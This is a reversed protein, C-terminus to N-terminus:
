LRMLRVAWEGDESKAPVAQEMAHPGRPEVDHVDDEMDCHGDEVGVETGPQGASMCCTHYCAQEKGTM